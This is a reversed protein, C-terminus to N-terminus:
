KFTIDNGFIASGGSPQFNINNAVGYITKMRWLFVAPSEEMIASMAEQLLKKREEPDFASRTKAIMADIKPNSFGVRGSIGTEFYQSLFQGPDVISGRGYYYFPVKTNEIDSSMKTREHTILNTRIGVDNLMAVIAENTQKDNVYRNISSQLEVDIGNPYGAKALLEKAKKPDYDYRPNLDPTYAYQGPGIPGDLRDALGGLVVDIITQRDIAHAVAQRLLKNDWPKHKPSMVLLNNEIGNVLAVKARGGSEIAKVMHPPVYQIIQVEGRNLAAVRQEPEKMNRFILEDPADAKAFVSTPNKRLAMLQGAQIDVIEYPGFSLRHERDAAAGFQEYAKKNTIILRESVTQMMTVDATKTTVLLTHDDEAKMDAINEFNAKQRSQPDAMVRKWSHIVDATTVPEGNNWKVDARFHLRWHLPDVTEWSKALMPVVDGKIFDYTALCGYGQCGIAYNLANSEQYPSIATNITTGISVRRAQACADTSSMVLAAMLSAATLLRVYM